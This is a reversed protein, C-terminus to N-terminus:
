DELGDALEGALEPNSELQKSVADLPDITVTADLKLRDAFAQVGIHKGILDLAKLQPPKSLKIKRVELLSNEATAKKGREGSEYEVDIQLSDICALQEPTAKALDYYPPSGDKPIVLFDGLSTNAITALRKLVWDADIETRESREAQAKSIAKQIDPKRLNEWGIAYATDASYGARIAAQTANLDVLYEEVFVRQKGTLEAPKPPPPAKKGPPPPAKKILQPPLMGWM